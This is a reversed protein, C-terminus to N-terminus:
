TCIFLAVVLKTDMYEPAFTPVPRSPYISLIVARRYLINMIIIACFLNNEIPTSSMLIGILVTHSDM